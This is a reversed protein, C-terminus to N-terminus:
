ARSVEAIASRPVRFLLAYGVPVVVLNLFTSSALGGLLVVALPALLESGPEGAALALPVVGLAASIATMLIPSLRECSGRVIAEALTCRETGLVHQYHNVLLIGNRVAIGFLTIFGIWSAISLVPATREPGLGLLGQVYALPDASETLLVALVGGIMALPLNLLVLFASRWSGTATQLILAMFFLVALGAWLITRQANQQAEFQGGYVVEYGAAAVIPDVRARVVEILDGLNAGEAVNCSIVAKRRASERAILQTAREPGVEAVDGLRVLAGTSGRLPLDRVDEISARAEKKLRVVLDLQRREETVTAVQAGHLAQEVQRAAEVRTLGAAALESERYHIGLAPALIERNAAVDRAGPIARLAAEIERALRRLEALDDGYVSIAIAAPTGSLVHSLRHEIPQGVMTTVGPIAELVEDIGRRVAAKSAAPKLTVEIESNSVPEAHEDREARGTRRSVTRVGDIALLRKEIARGIRDSEQLSTGPPNMVFVTFTGENFEPLFSSGYSGGLFLAAVTALLAGALVVGRRRLALLLSPRYLRLLLRVFAGEKEEHTGRMREGLVLRCLAPTLTLAVILSSLVSVMYAAALPRFFRGELGGLFLLPVFVVVILITALVMSPRIENSAEYIVRLTSKRESAPLAGNQRVRRWVNEVDIIADDVLVGIAVALGGLTMVDIGYGLAQLILLTIAISLPLATLTILTARLNMLFLVLVGAVILAADRLVHLVNDLSRQIFDAQRMVARNLVLGSPLGAEVQELLADIGRTLELTNTGPSKQVSLIVAPSGGESAAGRVPAAGIGIEAVESLPIPRTGQMGVTTAGLEASSRLRGGQRIPLERREIDPLYGAPSTSHAGKAAAIVADLDLGLLRLRDPDVHVQYEALEGGLVMVQAVGPVGRLKKRLDFEAWARLEMPSVTGDPSSVGLLLIEGTISTVPTIEAHAAEPLMERLSSLQESVLQRARYIDIGWDFEVWALSLGLTSASRVRRVGPLGGMSTEIPFSVSREVEDPSLGPAESLVVVTPANLEPFVDVPIGELRWAVWAVLLTAALAVFAAHSLSFAILARLAGGSPRDLPDHSQETSMPTSRDM